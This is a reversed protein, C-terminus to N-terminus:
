FSEKEAPYKLTKVDNTFTDLAHKILGFGDLYTRLFKPTFDINLGLVDQFVLIQGSTARGAGIGITPIMISDTIKKALAAPIMELVLSFCGREQLEHADQLLRQGAAPGRGQLKYGGFQHVSQPTLGLHGMVPIGSLVLPSIIDRRTDLGEIKVAQAGAKILAAVSDMTSELGKQHALFPMDGIIFKDPAGRRVAAVHQEMMPIDAHVTTDYGHMVMAASDGVLIADVETANVIKASTYDYCTVLTLPVGASKMKQFGDITKM